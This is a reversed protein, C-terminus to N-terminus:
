NNGFWRRGAYLNCVGVVIVILLASIFSNSFFENLGLTAFNIFFLVSGGYIIALIFKKIDFKNKKGDSHYVLLATGLLASPFLIYRVDHRFVETWIFLVVLVSVNIVASLKFYRLCYQWLNMPKRGM